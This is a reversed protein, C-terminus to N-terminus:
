MRYRPTRRRHLNVIKPHVLKEYDCFHMKVIENHSGANFSIEDEKALASDTFVPVKYLNGFPPMAGVTCDPFVEAFDEERALRAERAGTVEKMRKLSVKYNAPLVAMTIQGDLNVMVTKAFDRGKVHASQAIEQATYTIPHQVVQYSVHNQDLLDILKRVAM